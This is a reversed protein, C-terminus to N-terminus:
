RGTVDRFLPTWTVGDESVYIATAGDDVAAYVGDDAVLLAQPGGGLRQRAQWADGVLEHVEGDAGLGWLGREEHWGLFALAPGQAAFPTWSRGGDVSELLGAATTAVIRDPDGPSVAFDVMSQQSRAHWQEGDNSVMFVGTASNFGYVAGHAASLSHFDAEGLLSLPEWTEGGDVSEILGLLPPHGDRRLDDSKLSPHGSALFHAAGVVTFGMLDHPASVLQASSSDEIRFLGHHTAAHLAGDAPDVGLGHVHAVGPTGDAATPVDGDGGAGVVLVTAVVAAVVIGGVWLAVSRARGPGRTPTAGKRGRTPPNKSATM